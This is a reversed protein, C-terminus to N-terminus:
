FPSWYLTPYKGEKKVLNNYPDLSITYLFSSM